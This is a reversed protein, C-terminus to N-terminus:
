QGTGQVLPTFSTVNPWHIKSATYNGEVGHNFEAFVVVSGDALPCEGGDHTYSQGIRYARRYTGPAHGVDIEICEKPPHEDYMVWPGFVYRPATDTPTALAYERLTEATKSEAHESKRIIYCAAGLVDRPVAIYDTDTTPKTLNPITSCEGKREQELRDLVWQAAEPTMGHPCEEALRQAPSKPIFHARVADGSAESWIIDLWKSITEVCSPCPTAM